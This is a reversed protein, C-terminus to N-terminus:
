RTACRRRGTWRRAVVAPPPTYPTGYESLPVLVMGDQMAHTAEYDESTGTCYLRGLMWVLATPSRLETFGEPISGSWGPGSIVYQQPGNGTTHTGPVEFVETWGSLLPLLYYRGRRTRCQSYGRRM